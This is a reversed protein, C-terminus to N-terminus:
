GSSSSSGSSSTALRWLAATCTMSTRLQRVRSMRLYALGALVHLQLMSTDSQSRLTLPLGDSTHMSDSSAVSGVCTLQQLGAVSHTAIYVPKQDEPALV